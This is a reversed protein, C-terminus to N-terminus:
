CCRLTIRGEAVEPEGIRAWDVHARACATHGSEKWDLVVHKRM